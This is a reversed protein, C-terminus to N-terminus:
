GGILTLWSVVPTRDLQHPSGNSSACIQTRASSAGTQSADKWNPEGGASAERAPVRHFPREVPDQGFDSPGPFIITHLFSADSWSGTQCRVPM